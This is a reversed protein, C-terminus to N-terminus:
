PNVGDCISQLWLSSCLTIQYFKPSVRKLNSSSSSLNCTGGRIRSELWLLRRFSWRISMDPQDKFDQHQDYFYQTMSYQTMDYFYQSILNVRSIEEIKTSIYPQSISLHFSHHCFHHWHRHSEQCTAIFSINHVVFQKIYIKFLLFFSPSGFVLNCSSFFDCQNCVAPFRSGVTWLTNM